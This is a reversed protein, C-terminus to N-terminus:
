GALPPSIRNWPRTRHAWPSLMHWCRRLWLVYLCFVLRLAQELNSVLFTLAIQALSTESLKTMVCALGYRRKTEGFKGEVQNRVSEDQRAQKKEAKSIGQRPRGLPPGSMRIGRAKCYARNNRTRYIKDVHVSEPYFGFREGYSEIQAPLAQGENYNDWSIRDAFSFGDVLGITLKAGFETKAKAKGRKIPRVHPQSISVIRDDIRTSKTRHMALQQRYVERCVLLTKYQVRTLDSLSLAEPDNLLQEIAKLNRGLYGLQKRRAARIKQRSPRKRKTFALFDRRGKQRYPRPREGKLPQHLADIIQDTKERAENLLSVDTPFRIDAPACTADSILRGCNATAERKADTVPSEEAASSDPTESLQSSDASPGQAGDDDGESRDTDSNPNGSQEGTPQTSDLAALAIADSIEQIGQEGFRKRFEVMLSPHFPRKQTFEELGVFFQLFPNEQITEVTERDTLGLREKIILAGLAMRSPMAPAGFDECRSTLYIKEALDWPVIQALRIWRNEPDLKGSFPLYFNAFELHNPSTRRYM